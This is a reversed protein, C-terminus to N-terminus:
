YGEASQFLVHQPHCLTFSLSILVTNVGYRNQECGNEIKRHQQTVPREKFRRPQLYVQTSKKQLLGTPLCYQSLFLSEEPRGCGLWLAQAWALSGLSTSYSFLSIIISGKFVPAELYSPGCIYSAGFPVGKWFMHINGHMYFVQAIIHFIYFTIIHLCSYFFNYICIPLFPKQM